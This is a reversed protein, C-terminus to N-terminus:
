TIFFQNIKLNRREIKVNRIIQMAKYIKTIKYKDRKNSPHADYKDMGPQILM